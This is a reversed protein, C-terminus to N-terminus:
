ADPKDVEQEFVEWGAYGTCGTPHSAAYEEAARKTTFVGNVWAGNLGGDHCIVYVKPM